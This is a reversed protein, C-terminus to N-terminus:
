DLRGFAERVEELAGAVPTSAAQLRRIRGAVPSMAMEYVAPLHRAQEELAATADFDVLWLVHLLEALRGRADDLPGVMTVPRRRAQPTDMVLGSSGGYPDCGAYHVTRISTQVAAGLCMCCPELTTVLTHDEYRREPPLLALANLEAHAVHCHSLQPGEAQEEYRRGRGEAVMLGAGDVVVAGVPTTRASFSEWALNLARSWAEDLGM